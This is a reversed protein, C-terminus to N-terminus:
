VSGLETVRQKRRGAERWRKSIKLYKWLKERKTIKKEETATKNNNNNNNNNILQL